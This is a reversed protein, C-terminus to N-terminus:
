LRSRTSITDPRPNGAPFGEIFLGGPTMYRAVTIKVGSGNSLDFITQVSGKGYSRQGAIRCRKNEKLAAVVIEAASATKPGQLVIMPLKSFTGEPSAKREDTARRDRGVTSVIRGDSLFLDAVEVAENFLGGPSNQLDLILGRVNPKAELFGRIDEAINSTFVGVEILAIQSKLWIAKVNSSEVWDLVVTVAFLETDQGRRVLLDLREREGGMLAHELENPELASLPVGNVEVIRDGVRLGSQDAPSDAYIRSLVVSFQGVDSPQPQYLFGPQRQRGAAAERLATMDEATYYRSHADLSELGARIGTSVVEGLNPPNVFYKEVYFLAEVTVRLEKYWDAKWLVDAQAVVSAFFLGLAFGSLYKVM